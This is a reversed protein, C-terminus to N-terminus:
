YSITLGIAKPCYEKDNNHNGSDKTETTSDNLTLFRM